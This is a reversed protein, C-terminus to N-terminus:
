WVHSVEFLLVAIHNTLITLRTVDHTVNLQLSLSRGFSVGSVLIESVRARRRPGTRPQPSPFGEGLKRSEDTNQHLVRSFMHTTQSVGM